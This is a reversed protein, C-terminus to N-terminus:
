NQLINRKKNAKSNKLMSLGLSLRNPLSHIGLKMRRLMSPSAHFQILRDITENDKFLKKTQNAVISKERVVSSYRVVYYLLSIM